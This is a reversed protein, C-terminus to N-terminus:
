FWNFVVRTSRVDPQCLIHQRAIFHKDIYIAMIVILDENSSGRLWNGIRSMCAAQLLMCYEASGNPQSNVELLIHLFDRISMHFDNHPTYKM